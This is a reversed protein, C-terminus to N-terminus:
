TYSTSEHVKLFPAPYGRFLRKHEFREKWPRRKRRKRKGKWPGWRLDLGEKTAPGWRGWDEALLRCFPSLTFCIFLQKGCSWDPLLSSLAKQLFHLVIIYSFNMSLLFSSHKCTKVQGGNLTSVNFIGFLSESFRLMDMM